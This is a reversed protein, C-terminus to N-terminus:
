LILEIISLLLIQFAYDMYTWFQSGKVEEWFEVEGGAVFLLFHVPEM